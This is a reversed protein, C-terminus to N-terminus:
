PEVVGSGATVVVGDGNVVLEAEARAGDPGGRAQLDAAPAAASSEVVAAASHALIAAVLIVGGVITSVSPVQPRRRVRDQVLCKV